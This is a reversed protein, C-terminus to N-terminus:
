GRILINWSCAFKSIGNSVAWSQLKSFNRLASKCYTINSLTHIYSITNFETLMKTDDKCIYM